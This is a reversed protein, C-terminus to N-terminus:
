GGDGEKDGAIEFLQAQLQAVQAKLDEVGAAEPEPEEEEPAYTAAMVAGILAGAEEDDELALFRLWNVRALHAQEVALGMGRLLAVEDDSPSDEVGWGACYSFLQETARLAEVQAAGSLALVSEPNQIASPGFKLILHRLAQPKLPKLRLTRGCRLTFTNGM